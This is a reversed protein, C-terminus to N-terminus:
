SEESSKGGLTDNEQNRRQQRLFRNLMKRNRKQTEEDSVALHVGGGWGGAGVRKEIAEEEVTIVRKDGIGQISKIPLYEGKEGISQHSKSIAWQMVYWGGVVPISFYVLGMFAQGAPPLPYRWATHVTKKIREHRQRLAHLGSWLWSGGSTNPSM